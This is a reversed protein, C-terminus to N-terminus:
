NLAFAMVGLAALQWVQLVTVLFVGAYVRGTKRFFYTYACAALPYFVLMPIYYIGGMGAATAGIPDSAYVIPGGAALPIYLIALWILAGLTLVVSNVIMERRLSAKGGDVRLLGMLLVAQYASIIAFPILYGLFAQFRAATMPLLAVIWLRFDVKWAAEVFLLCLYIPLLTAVAWLLSKLIKGIPFGEGASRLGYSEATAGLKRTRTLHTLVILLIGIVATIMGWVMIVNTFNEPWMRNPALIPSFFMKKWVGLYLLPGIGTTLAAALWWMGGRLGRFEPVPEVLSKFYPAQLLLSGMPFLFLFAGLIALMSGVSKWQWIQDSAALSAGGSLTKGMWDLANGISARSDTSWPHTGWPQYLIRATGEAISGYVKGIEIPDQVGFVPMLVPSVRADKGKAVFIMVGMETMSGISFAANKLGVAKSLDPSGPTNVESDMYFISKYSEPALFAANTASLFGGQSMGLLGINAKDVYTLSGLYSLPGVAGGANDGNAGTSRGHGPQDMSLVVYGRRAFELATNAMFKKENNLGHVMLVAPAPQKPSASRPVYLLASIAYGPPNKITVESVAAKGAGTNIWGALLSGGLVMLFAISLFTWQKRTGM